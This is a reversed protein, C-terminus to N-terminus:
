TVDDGGESDQGAVTVKQFVTAPQLVKKDICEYAMTKFSKKDRAQPKSL